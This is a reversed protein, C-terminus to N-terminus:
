PFPDPRSNHIRPCSRAQAENAPYLSYHAKWGALYVVYAAYLKFTPIQYRIAEEAGPVAKRITSRVRELVAQV